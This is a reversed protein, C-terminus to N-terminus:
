HVLVPAPEAEPYLISCPPTALAEAEPVPPSHDMNTGM